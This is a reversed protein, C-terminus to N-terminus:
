SSGYVDTSQRRHERGFPLFTLAPLRGGLTRRGDLDALDATEPNDMQVSGGLFDTQFQDTLDWVTRPAAATGWRRCWGKRPNGDAPPLRRRLNDGRRRAVQGPQPEIRGTGTPDRGPDGPALADASLNKRLVRLICPPRVLLARRLPLLPHTLAFRPEAIPKPRSNSRKADPRLRRASVALRAAAPHGRAPFWRSGPASVLLQHWSRLTLGHGAAIGGAADYRGEM